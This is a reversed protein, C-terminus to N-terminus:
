QQSANDDAIRVIASSDGFVGSTAALQKSDMNAEAAARALGM